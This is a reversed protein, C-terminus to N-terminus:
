DILKFKNKLLSKHQCIRSNVYDDNIIQGKGDLYLDYLDHINNVRFIPRIYPAREEVSNLRYTITRHHRGTKIAYKIIKACPHIYNNNVVKEYFFFLTKIL